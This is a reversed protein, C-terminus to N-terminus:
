KKYMKIAIETIMIHIKAGDIENIIKKIENSMSLNTTKFFDM